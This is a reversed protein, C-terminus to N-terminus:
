IEIYSPLLVFITALYFISITCIANINTQVAFQIGYSNFTLRLLKSNVLIEQKTLFFRVFVIKIVLSIFTNNFFLKLNKYIKTCEM